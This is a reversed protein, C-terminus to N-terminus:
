RRTQSSSMLDCSSTRVAVIFASSYTITAILPTGSCEGATRTLMCDGLPQGVRSDEDRAIYVFTMCANHTEQILCM